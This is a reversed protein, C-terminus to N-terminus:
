TSLLQIVRCCIRCVELEDRQISLSEDDGPLTPEKSRDHNEKNNIEAIPSEIGKIDKSTYRDVIHPLNGRQKVLERHQIEEIETQFTRLTAM